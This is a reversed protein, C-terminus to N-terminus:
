AEKKDEKAFFADWDVRVGEEEENGHPDYYYFAIPLGHREAIGRMQEFAVGYNESPNYNILTWPRFEYFAFSTPEGTPTDTHTVTTIFWDDHSKHDKNEICSVATVKAFDKIGHSSLVKYYDNAIYCCDLPMTEPPVKPHPPAELIDSKM